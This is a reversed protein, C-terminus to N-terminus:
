DNVTCIIQKGSTFTCFTDLKNNSDVGSHEYICHICHVHVSLSICWVSHKEGFRLAFTGMMSDELVKLSIKM